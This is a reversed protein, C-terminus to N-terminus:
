DPVVIVSDPNTSLAPLVVKEFLAQGPALWNAKSKVARVYNQVLISIEDRRPLTHVQVTTSTIEIVHSNEKSDLVYELLAEGPALSSQLRRITVPPERLVRMEAQN